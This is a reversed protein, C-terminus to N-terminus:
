ENRKEDGATLFVGVEGGEFLVLEPAVFVGRSSDDNWGLVDEGLIEVGVADGGDDIGVSVGPDVDVGLVLEDNFRVNIVVAGVGEDFAQGAEFLVTFDAEEVFLPFDDDGGLVFEGVGELVAEGLDALVDSEDPFLIGFVGGDDSVM